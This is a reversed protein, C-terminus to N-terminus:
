HTYRARARAAASRYRSAGVTKRARTKKAKVTSPSATRKFRANSSARQYARASPTPGTSAKKVPTFTKRTSRAAAAAPKYSTPMQMPAGGGAVRATRVTKLLQAMETTSRKRAM